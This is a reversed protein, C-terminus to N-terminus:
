AVHDNRVMTATHLERFYMAVLEISRELVEVAIQEEEATKVVRKVLGFMLGAHDETADTNLHSSAGKTYERGLALAAKATIHGNFNVGYYELFWDWVIAPLAGHKAVMLRLYGMLLKTSFFTDTAAVDAKSLGLAKLDAMFLDGHGLEDYLYYSFDKAALENANVITAIADADLKNNMEIRLVCEVIHRKYYDTDFADSTHFERAFPVTQFFKEMCRDAISKAQEHTFSM